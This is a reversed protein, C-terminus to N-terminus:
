AWFRIPMKQRIRLRAVITWGVTLDIVELCQWRGEQTEPFKKYRFPSYGNFPKLVDLWTLHLGRLWLSVVNQQPPGGLAIFIREGKQVPPV